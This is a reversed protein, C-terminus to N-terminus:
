PAVVELGDPLAVASKGTVEFEDDRERAIGDYTGAKVARVRVPAVYKTYKTKKADEEQRAKVEEPTIVLPKGFQNRLPNSGWQRTVPGKDEGGDLRHMWRGLDAESEIYFEDGAARYGAYYGQTTARVRIGDPGVKPGRKEPTKEPPRSPEPTSITADM